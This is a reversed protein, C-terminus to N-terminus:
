SCVNHVGVVYLLVFCATHQCEVCFEVAFSVVWESCIIYLMYSSAVNRSGVCWIGVEFKM